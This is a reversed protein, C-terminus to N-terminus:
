FQWICDVYVTDESVFLEPREKLLNDKMFAILDRLTVVSEPLELDFEKIKGFLLECGGSLLLTLCSLM